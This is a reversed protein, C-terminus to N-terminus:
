NTAVQLFRKGLLWLYLLTVPLSALLWLPWSSGGAGATWWAKCVLYPPYFGCLWQLREPLFWAGLPIMNVVGLIKMVAFAEVKNSAFTALFLAIGPAFAAGCLACGLIAPWPPLALGIVVSQGLALIATFVALAGGMVALYTQLPVPTVVLARLTAEERSELLLFGGVAGAMLAAVCVVMYSVFLPFYVELDFSEVEGAIAPLAFRVAVAFGLAMGVLGLMFRDRVVRRLDTRLFAIILHSM